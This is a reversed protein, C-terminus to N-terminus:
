RRISSAAFSESRRDSILATLKLSPTSDSSSGAARPKAQSRFLGFRRFLVSVLQSQTRVQAKDFLQRLHTAATPRRIGMMRCCEALNNGQMLLTALETEAATFGYVERVHTEMGKMPLEPDIMFILAPQSGSAPQSSSTEFSRMLLTLPRRGSPRPVALISVQERDRAGSVKSEQLQEFLGRAVSGKRPGARLTRSLTLELGDRRALIDDAVGNTHLLRGEADVIGLGVGVLDFAALMEQLLFGPALASASGSSVDRLAGRFGDRHPSYSKLM